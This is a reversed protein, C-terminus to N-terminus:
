AEVGNLLRLAQGMLRLKIAAENGCQLHWAPRPKLCEGFLTGAPLSSCAGQTQRRRAGHLLRLSAGDTPAEHRSRQLVCQLHIAVTALVRWLCLPARVKRRGGGRVTSCGCAQEILRLNMAAETAFALGGAQLHLHLHRTRAALLCEGCAFVLM